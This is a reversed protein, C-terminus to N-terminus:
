YARWICALRVGFVGHGSRCRLLLGTQFSASSALLFISPTDIQSYFDDVFGHGLLYPIPTDFKFTSIM